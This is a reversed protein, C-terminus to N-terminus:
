QTEFLKTILIGNSLVNFSYKVRYIKSYHAFIRMTSKTIIEEMLFYNQHDYEENHNYLIHTLKSFKRQRNYEAM